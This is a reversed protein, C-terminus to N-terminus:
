MSFEPQLITKYPLVDAKQISGLASERGVYFM